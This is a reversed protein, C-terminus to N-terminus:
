THIISDIYTDFTSLGIEYTYKKCAIQYSQNSMQQLLEKDRLYRTLENTIQRTSMSYDLYIMSNGFVKEELDPFDGCIVSHNMAAEIYKQLFLNNNSKTCITIWSQNILKALNEGIVPQSPDIICVRFPSKELVTKLKNRLPYVKAWVSGYLLVDYKKELQYNKNIQNDIFHPFYFQKTMFKYQERVIYTNYRYFLYDYKNSSIYNVTTNSRCGETGLCRYIGCRCGVDELNVIKIGKLENLYEPNCGPLVITITYEKDANIQRKDAEHLEISYKSYTQLYCYFNYLNKDTRNKLSDINGIVLITTM